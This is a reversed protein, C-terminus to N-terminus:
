CRSIGSMTMSIRLRPDGSQMPLVDPGKKIVLIRGRSEYIAKAKVYYITGVVLGLVLGLIVYSKREWFISMFKMLDDRSENEGPERKHTSMTIRVQRSPKEQLPLPTM